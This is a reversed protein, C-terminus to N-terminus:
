TREGLFRSVAFQFVAKQFTRKDLKGRLIMYAELYILTFKNYDKLQVLRLAILLHVRLCPM